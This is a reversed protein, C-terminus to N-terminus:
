VKGLMKGQGNVLICYCMYQEIVHTYHVEVM